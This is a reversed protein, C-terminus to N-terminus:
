GIIGLVTPSAFWIAVPVLSFSGIRVSDTFDQEGGSASAISALTFGGMSILGLVSAVVIFM